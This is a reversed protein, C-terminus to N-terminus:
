PYKVSFESTRNKREDKVRGANSDRGVSIVQLSSLSDKNSYYSNM